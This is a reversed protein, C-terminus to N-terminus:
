GRDLSQGELPAHGPHERCLARTPVELRARPQGALAGADGLAAAAGADPEPRVALDEGAVGGVDEVLQERASPLGGEDHGAELDDDAVQPALLRDLLAELVLAADGLEGVEEAGVLRHGRDQAQLAGVDEGLGDRQEVVLPVHGRLLDLALQGHVDRHAPAGTVLRRQTGEDVDDGRGLAAGVDAPELGRQGLREVVDHAGRLSQLDVVGVDDLVVHELAQGRDHGHTQGLRLELALGLLDEARGRGAGDHALDHGALELREQGRGLPGLLGLGLQHHLLDGAGLLRADRGALM